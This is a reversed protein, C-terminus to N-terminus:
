KIREKFIRIKSNIKLQDNLWNVAARRSKFEKILLDNENTIKYDDNSYQILNYQPNM